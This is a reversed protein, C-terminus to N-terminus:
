INACFKQLESALYSYRELKERRAFHLERSQEECDEYNLVEDAFQESTLDFIVNQVQNFCHYNGEPLFIGLVKGGFIDQVLFSTISCQGLTPNDPTWLNRLRPTCSYECWINLLTTYLWNPNVKRNLTDNFVCINKTYQWGYFM